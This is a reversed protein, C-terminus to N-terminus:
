HLLQDKQAVNRQCKAPPRMQRLIDFSASTALHADLRLSATKVYPLIGVAVHRSLVIETDARFKARKTQLGKRNGSDKSPEEGDGDTKAKSNPALSSSQGKRRHSGGSNGSAPEHSFSWSDGKSCQGRAKLQFCGGVKREVNVKNGKQSMTVVGREVVENQVSSNRTRMMQDIQLKVATKWRSYNPQGNNRAIEQDYLALVTQLLVSDQLKSKCLGELIMETPIESASLLAQDWRVDFDQVHDNQLRIKFM